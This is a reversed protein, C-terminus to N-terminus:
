EIPHDESLVPWVIASKAACLNLSIATIGAKMSQIWAEPPRESLYVPKERYINGSEEGFLAKGTEEDMEEFEAPQFGEPSAAFSQSPLSNEAPRWGLRKAANENPDIIKAEGERFNVFGSKLLNSM